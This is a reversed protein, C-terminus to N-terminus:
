GSTCRRGENRTSGGYGPRDYSFLHIGRQEADLIEPEYMLGSGPTGHQVLMPIGGPVGAERVHLARGDRATVTRSV